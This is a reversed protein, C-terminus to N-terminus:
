LLENIIFSKPLMNVYDIWVESYDVDRYEEFWPGGKTYHVAKPKIGSATVGPVFNWEPPLAGIAENTTWKFKHLYAGAETNVNNITLNKVVDPHSLNILMLSSWLKRSYKTQIIGDMKFAEERPPIWNFQVCMVSYKPDALDFLKNIDDLFVFDADVFIAWGEKQQQKCVVPTLFRSFSFETSFPKNDIADFLQGSESHISKRFYLKDTQLKRLNLFSVSAKDLQQQNHLISYKCVLSALAERNDWGIFVHRKNNSTNNVSQETQSM